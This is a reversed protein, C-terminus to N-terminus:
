GLRSRAAAFRMFAVVTSVSLLWTGINDCGFRTSSTIRLAALAIWFDQAFLFRRSPAMVFVAVDRVIATSCMLIEDSRGNASTRRLSSPATGLSSALM